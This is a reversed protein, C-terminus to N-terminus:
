LLRRSLHLKCIPMHDMSCHSSTNSLIDKNCEEAREATPNSSCTNQLSSPHPIPTIGSGRASAHETIPASWESSLTETTGEKLMEDLEQKVTDRYVPSLRYPPLRVPHAVGTEIRHEARDTRVPTNKMIDRFDTPLRDLDTCQKASWQSRQNGMQSAMGSQYERM